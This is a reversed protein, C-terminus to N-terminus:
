PSPEAPSGSPTSWDRMPRAPRPAQLVAAAYLYSDSPSLPIDMQVGGSSVVITDGSLTATEASTWAFGQLEITQSPRFDSLAGITDTTGTFVLTAPYATLDVGDGTAGDAVVVTARNVHLADVTAGSAIWLTAGDDVRVGSAVAGAGITAESDALSVSINRVSGGDAVFTGDSTVAASKVFSSSAVFDGGSVIM